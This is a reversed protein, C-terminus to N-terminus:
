RNRELYDIDAQDAKSNRLRKMAVLDPASVVRISENGYRIEVARALIQEMSDSQPILLDVLLLDQQAPLGKYFRHLTLGSKPFVQPDPNERYGLGRLVSGARDLDAAAVLLDIDETARVYGHLGVALGGAVAFRVSGDGLCRVIEDFELYLSM